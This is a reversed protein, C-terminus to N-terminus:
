GNAAKIRMAWHGGLASSHLSLLLNPMGILVTAAFCFRGDAASKVALGGRIPLMVAALRRDKMFDRPKEKRKKRGVLYIWQNKLKKKRKSKEEALYFRCLGKEEATKRM